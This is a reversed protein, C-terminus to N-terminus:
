AEKAEALLKCAVASADAIHAEVARKAAQPDQSLVASCIAEMHDLGPKEREGATLTMARLRSIRGNLRLLRLLNRDIADIAEM